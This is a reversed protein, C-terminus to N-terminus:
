AKIPAGEDDLLVLPLDLERLGPEITRQDGVVLVGLQGPQVLEAGIRQVEELTVAEINPKVTQFYDGPLDYLVLQLLHNILQSPREFSAPYSQLIGAKAGDLEIQSIPRDRHVDNFERLTETVSEKTVETQVSGGAYLVSPGLYWQVISHYGYSYGKDQRLNQNLRAAFQGGFVYNLLLLGFYDPHHRPITTHMARIVSQAAGPKDVLYITAANVRGDQPVDRGLGTQAQTLWDGLANQAQRVVDALSVDGAVILTAGVPGYAGKFRSVVDDRTLSGLAAETGQIPHAYGTDQDFVLGPM